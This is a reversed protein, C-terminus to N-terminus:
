ELIQTIKQNEKQYLFNELKKDANLLHEELWNKLSQLYGKGFPTHGNDLQSKLTHLQELLCAHEKKHAMIETYKCAEMIKEENKFHDEALIVFDNLHKYILNISTGKSVCMCLADLLDILQQHEKELLPHM